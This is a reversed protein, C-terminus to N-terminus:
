MVLCNSNAQGPVFLEPKSRPVNRLLGLKLASAALEEAAVTGDALVECEEFESWQVDIASPAPAGPLAGARELAESDALGSLACVGVTTGGLELPVRAAARSGGLLAAADAAAADSRFSTTTLVYAPGGDAAPNLGLCVSGKRPELPCWGAGLIYVECVCLSGGGGGGGGGGGRKSPLRSAHAVRAPVGHLRLCGVLVIALEGATVDREEILASASMAGAPESDVVRLRGPATLGDTLLQAYSYDAMGSARHLGWAGLAGDLRGREGPFYAGDCEDVDLARRREGGSLKAAEAVSWGQRTVEACAKDSKRVLKTHYVCVEHVTLVANLGRSGPVLVGTTAGLGRWAQDLEEFPKPDAGFTTFQRVRADGQASCGDGGGGLLPRSYVFYAAADATKAAAAAVAAAADEEEWNAAAKAAPTKLQARSAITLRRCPKHILAVTPAGLSFETAPALQPPSPRIGAYDLQLRQVENEAEALWLTDTHVVDCQRVWDFYTVDVEIQSLGDLFTKPQKKPRLAAGRFDASAARTRRQFELYQAVPGLGRTLDARAAALKPDVGLKGDAIQASLGEGCAAAARVLTEATASGGFVLEAFSVAVAARDSGHFEGLLTERDFLEM